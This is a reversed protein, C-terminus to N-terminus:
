RGSARRGGLSRWPKAVVSWAVVAVVLPMPGPEFTWEVGTTSPDVTVESGVFPFLSSRIPESAGADLVGETYYLTLVLFAVLTTALACWAALWGALWPSRLTGDRTTAAALARLSGINALARGIGVDDAADHLNAALEARLERRQKRPVSYLDLWVDYRASAWGIRARDTLSLPRTSELTGTM